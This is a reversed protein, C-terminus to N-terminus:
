EIQGNQLFNNLAHGLILEANINLTKLILVQTLKDFFQLYDDIGPTSDERLWTLKRMWPEVLQRNRDIPVKGSHALQNRLVHFINVGRFVRDPWYQDLIFSFIVALDTTEDDVSAGKPNKLHPYLWEWIVVNSLFRSETNYINARNLLMRLHFGNEFQTQWQSSKLCDLANKFGGEIDNKTSLQISELYPHSALPFSKANRNSYFGWNTGDILSGIVLIDDVLKRKRQSDDSIILGGKFLISEPQTGSFELYANQNHERFYKTPMSSATSTFIRYMDVDFYDHDYDRLYVNVLRRKTM